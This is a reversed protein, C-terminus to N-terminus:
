RIEKIEGNDNIFVSCEKVEGGVNIYAGDIKVVTGGTNIFVSLGLSVDLTVTDNRTKTGNGTIKVQVKYAEKKVALKITPTNKNSYSTIYGSSAAPTPFTTPAVADISGTSVGDVIVALKEKSNGMCVYKGFNKNWKALFAGRTLHGYFSVKGDSTSWNVSGVVRTNGDDLSFNYSGSDGSYNAM